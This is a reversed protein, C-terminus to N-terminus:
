VSKQLTFGPMNKLIRQQQVHFMLDRGNVYDLVLFLRSETQFCSHLGVLFPHNSVQQLVHKERQVRDSNVLEKKAAKMAYMHDSKKLQVLLVKGYSGRGIVYLLDFDEPGLGSSVKSSEGTNGAENEEDVQELCEHISLNHPIATHTPDSAMSSPNVPMMIDSPLSHQGCEITDLKHCKKHVLLKCNTCKYVQHGLGGVHDTCIACHARRSFHKAQFTHGNACYLKRWCGATRHHISTDEPSPVKPHECLGEFAISNEFSTTMINRGWILASQTSTHTMSTGPFFPTYISQSGLFIPLFPKSFLHLRVAQLSWVPWFEALSEAFNNGIATALSPHVYALSRLTEQASTATVETEGVPSQSELNKTGPEPSVQGSSSFTEPGPSIQGPSKGTETGNTNPSLSVKSPYRSKPLDSITVGLSVKEPTDTVTTHSSCCPRHCRSPTLWRRLREYVGERGPTRLNCGRSTSFCSLM